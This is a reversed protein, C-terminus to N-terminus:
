TPRAEGPLVLDGALLLWKLEIGREIADSVTAISRDRGACCLTVCRLRCGDPCAKRHVHRGISKAMRYVSREVQDDVVAGERAVHRMTFAQEAKRQEIAVAALVAARVSHSVKQFAIALAWDEETINYRGELVALLGAVKMQALTAHSDLEDPQITGRTLEIARQRIPGAISEPIEILRQNTITGYGLLTPHHWPLPGPWDPLVDPLTPDTGQVWEFRQPTGGATDALLEAAKSPQFAIVIGIAYSGAALRRKTETSANSTGLVVGSWATRLMPLLTSGKRNGLEALAQGEDLYIFAGHRTQRKVPKMKGNADEEMVMDYFLEILGEGSGLPMNDAVQTGEYPLLESAGSVTSSKGLGSRGVQAVYLTLPAPAAVIAPLRISPHTLAALRALIAGLYADGSRARSHAAQRIHALMPRAAWFDEPLHADSTDVPAAVQRQQHRRTQQGDKAERAALAAASLNNDHELMAWARFRTYGRTDGEETQEFDTNPTYVFLCGYRISCSSAATANPHRWKSGDSDGDGEVLVWGVAALIDNWTSNASFWDAISDTDALRLSPVPVAVPTSKKTLLGSLWAPMPAPRAKSHWQYPLHTDPHPSPPLITYRWNNHLLDIGCTWGRKGVPHGTGSRRAWDNLTKISLQVGPHLFWCHRGGDGRGSHHERGFTIAGYSRELEALTADGGHRPDIDLVVMDAPIRCGVLADPNSRWWGAIVTPDSTADKFGNTVLPAKDIHSVPFVEFRARAYHLAWDLMTEPDVHEASVTM